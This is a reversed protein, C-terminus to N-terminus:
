LSYILDVTYYNFTGKLLSGTEVKCCCEVIGSQKSASECVECDCSVEEMGNPFNLLSNLKDMSKGSLEVIAVNYVGHCCRKSKYFHWLTNLKALLVYQHELSRELRPCEM